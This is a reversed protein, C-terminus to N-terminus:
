LGAGEKAPRVVGGVSVMFLGAAENGRLLEAAGVGHAAGVGPWGMNPLLPVGTPSRPPAAACGPSSPPPPNVIPAAPSALPLAPPWRLRTCTLRRLQNFPISPVKGPM